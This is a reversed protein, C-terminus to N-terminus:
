IQGDFGVSITHSSGGAVVFSVYGGDTGVGDDYTTNWAVSKQGDWAPSHDVYVIATSNAPVSITGECGDPADVTMYFLKLDNNFNWYVAIPGHPTPVVGNAWSLDGPMPKLTYTSFGPGTPIVGLIYNQVAPVIGTSWGHAMSTFGDEYPYGNQIGEWFTVGPGNNAMWGYLRRIEELASNAQGSIFRAEIEFYSLFAYVRKSYGTGVVDNDYFTNGYPQSMTDYMYELISEARKGTATGSIISISNGDQAHTACSVNGCSGDFFAGVSDDFLHDNIAIQLKAARASWRDADDGRGPITTAIVAAQKLALVYLVNLYTVPGTRDLFAYDGYTSVDPGYGKTVLGTAPDTISSFLKDLVNIIPQYYKEIYEIDGTYMYLDYSTSVWWLTYDLLHLTYNNISAPPIWGDSRQHNVLDVLVDKAASPVNHTLYSTRGSVAIDGTYPDRDRKAGDILVLENAMTESWANRPDTTNETLTVINMDNTYM